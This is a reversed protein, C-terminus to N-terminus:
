PSVAIHDPDTAANKNPNNIYRISCNCDAVGTIWTEVKNGGGTYFVVICSADFDPPLAASEKVALPFSPGFIYGSFDQSLSSGVANSRTTARRAPSKRGLDYALLGFTLLAAFFGILGVPSRGCRMLQLGCATAAVASSYLAYTEFTLTPRPRGVTAITGTDDDNSVPM